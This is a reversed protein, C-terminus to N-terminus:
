CAGHIEVTPPLPHNEWISKVVSHDIQVGGGCFLEEPDPSVPYKKVSWQFVCYLNKSSYWLYITKDSSDRQFLEKNKKTHKIM